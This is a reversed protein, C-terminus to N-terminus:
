ELGYLTHLEFNKSFFINNFFSYNILGENAKYGFNCYM